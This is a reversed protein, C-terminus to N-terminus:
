RMLPRKKLWVFEFKEMAEAERIALQIGEKDFQHDAGAVLIYVLYCNYLWTYKCNTQM